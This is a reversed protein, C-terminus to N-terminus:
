FSAAEQKRIGHAVYGTTRRKDDWSTHSSRCRSSTVPAPTGAHSAQSRTSKAPSQAPPYPFTTTRLQYNVSSVRRTAVSFLQGAAMSSPSGTEGLQQCNQPRPPPVYHYERIDCAAGTESMHCAINGTPSQFVWSLPAAGGVIRRPWAVLCPLAQEAQGLKGTTSVTEAGSLGYACLRHILALGSTM